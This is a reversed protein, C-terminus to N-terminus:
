LKMGELEIKRNQAVLYLANIIIDNNIKKTKVHRIYSLDDESFKRHSPLVKNVEKAYKTPLWADIILWKEYHKEENNSVIIKKRSKRKLKTMTITRTFTHYLNVFHFSNKNM